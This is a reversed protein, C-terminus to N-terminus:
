MKKLCTYYLWYCLGLLTLIGLVNAIPLFSKPVLTLADSSGVIVFPIALIVGMLASGAVLGCALLISREEKRYREDSMKKGYEKDLKKTTLYHIFGGVVVPLMVEPPLYIGLGVALTPLRWNTKARLYEDIIVTIVAFVAGFAVMGWPLAHRGSVGQALAALLSSQPASLVQSPDMGPRPFVGAIGYASYLIDLVPGVVLASVLAGIVLVFQQKWPTAGVMKGAKLDQMNENSIAGITAIITTVIILIATLESAQLATHSPILFVTFAGLLLIVIILMGSLPNNTTGILGALYGVITSILFGIILSFIVLGFDIWILHWGSFNLNIYKMFFFYFIFLLVSMVASGILVLVFPMDREVRPIAEEGPKKQKLSQFSLAIGRSIMKILRFLTWVGGILMTGVGVYRLHHSWIDMVADYASVGQPIGFHWTLYPLAIVWGFIVGVLLCVGVQVGIIYGAAILAPTFGMGMGFITKGVNFWVQMNDSILKFGIQALSLLGGVVGGEILMRLTAQEGSSAKLVNGIAVGEPFRLGPMQLLVRRLPVSFFVGLISGISIIFVCQWYPFHQWIHLILMAPLVFATAAAVAEGASAATQIINSELVNYNRFFRLYGLALVAAPISASITNGIKLALYANSAALVAALLISFILGKITLEPLRIHSPILPQDVDQSNSNM